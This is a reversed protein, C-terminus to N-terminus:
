EAMASFAAQQKKLMDMFWKLFNNSSKLLTGQSGGDSDLPLVFIKCLPVVFKSLYILCNYLDRPRNKPRPGQWAWCVVADGIKSWILHRSPLPSAGKGRPADHVNPEASRREGREEYAALFSRGTRVVCKYGSAESSWHITLCLSVLNIFM